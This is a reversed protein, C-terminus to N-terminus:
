NVTSDLGFALYKGPKSGKSPTYVCVASIRNNQIVKVRCLSYSKKNETTSMKMWEIADEKMKFEAVVPGENDINVIAEEEGKKFSIVDERVQYIMEWKGQNLGHDKIITYPMSRTNKKPHRLRIYLGRGVVARTRKQLMKTAWMFFQKTGPTPKGACYWAPTVDSDIAPDNAVFGLGEFAEDPSYGVCEKLVIRDM